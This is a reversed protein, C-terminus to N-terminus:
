GESIRGDRGRHASRSHLPQFTVFYSLRNVPDGTFCDRTDINEQLHYLGLLFLVNNSKRPRVLHEQTPSVATISLVCNM